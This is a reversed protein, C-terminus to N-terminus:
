PALSIQEISPLSGEEREHWPYEDEVTRSYPPARLERALDHLSSRRPLVCTGSM